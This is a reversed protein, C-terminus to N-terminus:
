RIAQDPRAARAQDGPRAAQAEIAANRLRDILKRRMNDTLPTWRDGVRYAHLGDVHLRGAHDRRLQLRVEVAIRNVTLAAAHVLARDRDFYTLTAPGFPTEVAFAPAQGTDDTTAAM